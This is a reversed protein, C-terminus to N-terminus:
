GALEDTPRPADSTSALTFLIYKTTTTALGAGMEILSMEHRAHELERRLAAERSAAKGDAVAFVIGIFSILAFGRLFAMFYAEHRRTSGEVVQSYSELRRSQASLDALKASLLSLEESIPDAQLNAKISALEYASPSQISTEPITASCKPCTSSFSRQTSLPLLPKFQKPTSMTMFNHLGGSFYSSSVFPEMQGEALSDSGKCPGPPYLLLQKRATICPLVCSPHRASLAGTRFSRHHRFQVSVENCLSFISYDRQSKSRGRLTEPRSHSGAVLM